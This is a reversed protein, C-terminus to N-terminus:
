MRGRPGGVAGFDTSAALNEGFSDDVGARPKAAVDEDIATGDDLMVANDARMSVHGGSGDQAASHHNPLSGMYTSACDNTLANLNSSSRDDSCTGNHDLIDRITFNHEPHRSTRPLLKAPL